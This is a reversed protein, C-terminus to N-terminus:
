KTDGEKELLEPTTYIDGIVECGEICVELLVRTMNEKDEAWFAGDLFVVEARFRRAKEEIIDKGYVDKGNKDKLGTWFLPTLKFIPTKLCADGATDWLRGTMGIAWCGADEEPTDMFGEEGEPEVWVKFRGERMATGEEGLGLSKRIEDTTKWNKKNIRERLRRVAEVKEPDSAIELAAHECDDLYDLSERLQEPTLYDKKNLRERAEGLAELADPDSMIAVTDELDELYERDVLIEERV